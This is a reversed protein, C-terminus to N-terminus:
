NNKEENAAPCAPACRLLGGEGRGGERHLLSWFQVLNLGALIQLAIRTGM